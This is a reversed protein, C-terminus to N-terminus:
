LRQLESPEPSGEKLRKRRKKMRERCTLSCYRQQAPAAEALGEACSLCLRKTDYAMTILGQFSTEQPCETPVRNDGLAAKTGSTHVPIYLNILTTREYTS